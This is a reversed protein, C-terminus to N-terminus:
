HCYTLERLVGVRVIRFVDGQAVSEHLPELLMAKHNVANGFEILLALFKIFDDFPKDLQLFAVVAQQFLIIAVGLKGINVLAYALLVFPTKRLMFGGYEAIIVVIDHSDESVYFRLYVM